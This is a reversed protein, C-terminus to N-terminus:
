MKSPYIVVEHEKADPITQLIELSLYIGCPRHQITFNEMLRFQKTNWLTKYSELFSHQIKFLVNRVSNYDIIKRSFLQVSQLYKVLHDHEELKDDILLIPNSVSPCTVFRDDTRGWCGLVLYLATDKEDQM